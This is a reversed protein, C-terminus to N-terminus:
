PSPAKLNKGCNEITQSDSADTFCKISVDPWKNKTCTEAAKRVLGTRDVELAAKQTPDKISAIVVDAIHASVTLCADTVDMMADAPPKAVGADVVDAVPAAAVDALAGADRVVFPRPPLTAVAADATAAVPPKAAEQKPPQLDCAAFLLVLILCRV